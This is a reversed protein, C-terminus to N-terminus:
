KLYFTLLEMEKESINGDIACFALGLKMLSDKFEFVGEKDFYKTLTNISMQTVRLGRKSKNKLEIKFREHEVNIKESFVAVFFDYEKEDVKNDDLLVFTTLIELLLPYPSGGAPIYSKFLKIYSDAAKKALEILEIKPLKSFENFQQFIIKKIEFDNM